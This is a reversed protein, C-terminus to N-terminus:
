DNLHINPYPIKSGIGTPRGEGRLDLDGDIAKRRLSMKGETRQNKGRFLSIIYHFAIHTCCFFYNSQLLRSIGISDPLM